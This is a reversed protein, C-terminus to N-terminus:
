VQSAVNGSGYRFRSCNRCDRVDDADNASMDSQRQQTSRLFPVILRTLLPLYNSVIEAFGTPTPAADCSHVGFPSGDPNSVRMAIVRLPVNHVRIL